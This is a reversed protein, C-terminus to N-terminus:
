KEKPAGDHSTPFDNFMQSIWEKTSAADRLDRGGGAGITNIWLIDGTRSDVLAARVTTGGALQPIIVVRTVVAAGIGLIDGLAQLAQRGGTWIHDEADLLLLADAGSALDGVDSGLSYDFNRLKEEFFYGAFNPNPYTHLLIMTSVASYLARTEQLIPREEALSEANVITVAANMKARLETEVLTIVNERAQESWTAIEEHVGGADIQYVKIELPLLAVTRIQRSRGALRANARSSAAPLVCGSFLYILSVLLALYKIRFM